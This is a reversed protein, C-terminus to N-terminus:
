FYMAKFHKGLQLSPSFPGSNLQSFGWRDTSDGGKFLSLPTIGDLFTIINNNRHAKIGKYEPSAASHQSYPTETNCYSVPGPLTNAPFNVRLCWSTPFLALM